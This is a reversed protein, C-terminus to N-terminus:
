QQTKEEINKEEFIIEKHLLDKFKEKFLNIFPGLNKQGRIVINAERIEIEPTIHFFYDCLSEIKEKEDTVKRVITFKYYLDKGALPNNFDVTVRAGSVVLIKVLHNDLTLMMGPHPDIKQEIFSALPIIQVLERRRRGFGERPPISVEYQKNLEKEELAKDLGAVVMNQGIVIITKHPKADANIKALDSPINSDFLQNNAYGSYKIEVFENKKTKQETM